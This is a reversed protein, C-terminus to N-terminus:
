RPSSAPGDKTEALSIENREAENSPPLMASQRPSSISELPRACFEDYSLTVDTQEDKSAEPRDGNVPVTTTASCSPGAVEKNYDFCSVIGIASQKKIKSLLNQFTKDEDDFSIDPLKTIIDDVPPKIFDIRKLTDSEISNM